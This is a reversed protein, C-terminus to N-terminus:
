NEYEEIEIRGKFIDFNLHNETKIIKVITEKVIKIQLGQEKYIFFQEDTRVVCPSQKSACLEPVQVTEAKLSFAFTFVSLLLVSRIMM